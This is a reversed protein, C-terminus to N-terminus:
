LVRFSLKDTMECMKLMYDKKELRGEFAADRSDNELSRIFNPREKDVFSMTIKLLTKGEQPYTNIADFITAAVKEMEMVGYVTVPRAQTKKYAVASVYIVKKAAPAQHKIEGMPRADQRPTAPVRTEVVMDAFKNLYLQLKNVMSKEHDGGYDGVAIVLFLKIQEFYAEGISKADYTSLIHM